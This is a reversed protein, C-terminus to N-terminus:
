DWNGCKVCTPVSRSLRTHFTVLVDTSVSLRAADASPLSFARHAEAQFGKKGAAVRHCPMLENSKAM